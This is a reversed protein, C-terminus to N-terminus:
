HCRGEDEKWETGCGSGGTLAVRVARERAAKVSSGPQLSGGSMLVFPKGVTYKRSLKLHRVPGSLPTLDRSEIPKAAPQVTQDGSRIACKTFARKSSWFRLDDQSNVNYFALQLV